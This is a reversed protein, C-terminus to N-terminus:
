KSSGGLSGLGEMFYRQALFFLVLPPLMYFLNTAMYYNYQTVGVGAFAGSFNAM